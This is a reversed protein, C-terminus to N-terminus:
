AGPRVTGQNRYAITINGITKMKIKNKYWYFLFTSGSKPYHLLNTQGKQLSDLLQKKYKKKKKRPLRVTEHRFLRMISKADQVKCTITYSM